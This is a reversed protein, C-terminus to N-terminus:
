FVKRIDVLIHITIIYLINLLKDKGCLNGYVILDSNIFHTFQMISHSSMLLGIILASLVFSSLM